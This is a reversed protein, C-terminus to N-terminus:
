IKKSLEKKFDRDICYVYCSMMGRTILMKYTNRALQNLPDIVYKGKPNASRTGKNKFNERKVELLNTDPNYILDNGIIVGVYEM